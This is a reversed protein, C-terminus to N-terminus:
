VDQEGGKPVQTIVGGTAPNLIDQTEGTASSAWEGGIFMEQQKVSIAMGWRRAGDHLSYAKLGSRSVVGRGAGRRGIAACRRTSRDRRPRGWGRRPSPH